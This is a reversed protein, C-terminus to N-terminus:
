NSTDALITLSKTGAKIADLVVSEANASSVAVVTNDPKIPLDFVSNFFPFNKYKKYKPNIPFITGNFNGKTLMELLALGYSNPKTSAGVIAITKPALLYDLNSNYKNM